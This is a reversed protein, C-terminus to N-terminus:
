PPSFLLGIVLGAIGFAILMVLKAWGRPSTPRYDRWRDTTLPTDLKRRASTTVRTM